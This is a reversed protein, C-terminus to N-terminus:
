GLEAALVRDLNRGTDERFQRLNVQRLLLLAVVAIAAELAFVAAFPGYAGVAEPMLGRALDLLGGGMVKGLARSYAQALGWVGVFTGAVEPLTLDLMLVLTANTGIGTALGFLAMVLRLAQPNATLGVLVLLVLTALILQCGLRACHVKGLRPVLLFGALLLGVLTGVGWIASLGATAAIPLDFVEAGYSELIPDQLFVALTFALLFCFFVLVQRSSTILGWAAQLTIAEERDAARSRHVAAGAPEMDWTALVTIALVASAVKAMFALLAPELLAPDSIGDLGKLSIASVIAGVVIGVTLLCWILGVARPREQEDTLDIVLALYPTTALSVSLGYCAAIGCVAAIGLGISLSQGSAFASHLRFIMPVMLVAFGCFLTAGLWIYPTRHRGAWAHADSIQGFLIRAPAVLQEFALAGGVLLGPFGLETLMVRNLLGVFIVALCGVCGQFLGLRL